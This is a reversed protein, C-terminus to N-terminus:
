NQPSKSQISMFHMRGRKNSKLHALNNKYQLRLPRQCSCTRSGVLCELFNIFVTLDWKNQDSKTPKFTLLVHILVLFSNTMLPGRSSDTPLCKPDTVTTTAKLLQMFFIHDDTSTFSSISWRSLVLSSRPFADCRPLSIDNVLYAFHTCSKLSTRMQMYKAWVLMRPSFIKHICWESSIGAWSKNELDNIWEAPTFRLPLVTRLDRASTGLSVSTISQYSREIPAQQEQHVSHMGLHPRCSLLSHASVALSLM